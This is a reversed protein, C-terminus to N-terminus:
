QRSTMGCHGFDPAYCGAWEAACGADPWVVWQLDADWAPAASSSSLRRHLVESATVIKHIDIRLDDLAAIQRIMAGASITGALYQNVADKAAGNRERILQVYVPVMGETFLLAFRKEDIPTTAGAGKAGSAVSGHGAVM